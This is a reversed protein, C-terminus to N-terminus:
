GLGRHIGFYGLVRWFTTERRHIYRTGPHTVRGVFINDSITGVFIQPEGKWENNDIM